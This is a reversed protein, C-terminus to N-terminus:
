GSRCRRSRVACDTPGFAGISGNMGDSRSRSSVREHRCVVRQDQDVGGAIQEAGIVGQGFQGVGFALGGSRQHTDDAHQALEDVLMSGVVDAHDEVCWALGKAVGDIGLVLGIPRGHGVLQALLDQRQLLHDPRHPQREQDDRVHLGVVHDAREGGAGGCLTDGCQDRGPVLVHRLEDALMDRQHVGHRIRDQIRRTDFLLEADRGLADDVIQGQHAVADVVDGTHGLAAGLGRCLPDRVEPIQVAYDGIRVLDRALDSLIQARHQVLQGQRALEGGDLPIDREVQLRRIQARGRRIALGQATPVLAEFGSAQEGGQLIRIGVGCLGGVGLCRRCRLRALVVLDDEGSVGEIGPDCLELGGLQEGEIGFRGVEVVHARLQDAERHGDLRARRGIDRDGMDVGARRILQIAQLHEFPQFGQQLVGLTVLDALVELVVHADQGTVGDLQAADGVVGHEFAIDEVARRSAVVHVRQGLFVQVVVGDVELVDGALTRLLEGEILDRKLLGSVVGGFVRVHGQAQMACEPGPQFADRAHGCEVPLDLDGQDGDERAHLAVAHPDIRIQEGHLASLKGLADLLDLDPGVLRGPPTEVHARGLLDPGDEELFQSQRHDGLCRGACGGGRLRHEFLEGGVAMRQRIQDQLVAAERLQFGGVGVLQTLHDVRVGAPDMGRVMLGHGRGAPEGGAVRIQLVDRDAGVLTAPDAAGEDGLRSVEQEGGVVRLDLQPDHRMERAVLTQERGERAPEIDMARGGGLDEAKCGLRDGPLLAARGLRDVETKDVAHGGEPEGLLEADLPTRCLFVHITIELAIRPDFVEHLAGAGLRALVAIDLGQEAPPKIQGLDPVAVLTAAGGGLPGGDVRGHLARGGVDDLAGHDRRVMPDLGLSRRNPHDHLYVVLQHELNCGIRDLRGAPANARRHFGSRLQRHREEDIDPRSLVPILGMLRFRAFFRFRYRKEVAQGSSGAGCEGYECM